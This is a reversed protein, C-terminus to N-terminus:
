NKRYIIKYYSSFYNKLYNNIKAFHLLNFIFEKKHNM